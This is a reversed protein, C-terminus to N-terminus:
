PELYTAASESNARALRFASKVEQCRLFGPKNMLMAVRRESPYQGEAYLQTVIQQVQQCQQELTERYVKQRHNKYIVSISACLDPFHKYLMRRNYGSKRAIETVSLPPLAQNMLEEELCRRAIEPEFSRCLTVSSSQPKSVLWNDLNPSEDLDGIFFNVLSLEFHRCINLSFELSPLVEGHCWLWLTNKPIKLQRALAAINGATAENILTSLQRTINSTSLRDRFEPSVALLAGLAEVRWLDLDADRSASAREHSTQGLWTHCHSCFGLSFNRGFPPNHQQCSPCKDVLLTQHTPCYKAIKLSWLLPEYLSLGRDLWSQYCLPCWARVSRLLGRSPIVDSFNLMTLLHLDQRLTLGELACILDRSMAGVGNLAGPAHSISQLNAGIYKKDLLRAVECRLLTGVNMTHSAALRAVYSTLSEVLPTSIGIPPLHNLYSHSITPVSIQWSEYIELSESRMM